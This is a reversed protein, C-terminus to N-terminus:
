NALKWIMWATLSAAVLALMGALSLMALKTATSNGSTLQIVISGITILAISVGGFVPSPSFFWLLVVLYILAGYVLCVQIATFRKM